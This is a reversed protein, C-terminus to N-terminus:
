LGDAGFWYSRGAMRNLKKSREHTDDLFGFLAAEASMPPM